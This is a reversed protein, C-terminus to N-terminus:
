GKKGAIRFSETRRAVLPLAAIKSLLIGVKRLGFISPINHHNWSSLFETVWYDLVGIDVILQWNNWEIGM